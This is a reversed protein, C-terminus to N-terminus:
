VCHKIRDLFPEVLIQNTLQQQLHAINQFYKSRRGSGGQPPKMVSKNAVESMEYHEDIAKM